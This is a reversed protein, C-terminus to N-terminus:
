DAMASSLVHISAFAMLCTVVVRVCNAVTEGSVPAAAMLGTLDFNVDLSPFSPFSPLLATLSAHGSDKGEKRAEAQKLQDELMKNEANIRELEALVDMSSAAVIAIFGLLLFARM